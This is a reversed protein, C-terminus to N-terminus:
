EEEEELDELYDEEEDKGFEEEPLEYDEYVEEKPEDAM